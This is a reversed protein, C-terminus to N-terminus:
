AKFKSTKVPQDPGQGTGPQDSEGQLYAEDYPQSGAREAEEKRRRLAQIVDPSQIVSMPTFTLVFQAKMDPVPALKVVVCFLPLNVSAAVTNVLASFNKVSMVPVDLIAMEASMVQEPTSAMNAPIVVIRRTEKCWKGRGSPSNPDSGWESYKCGKCEENKPSEVNEHPEMGDDTGAKCAFCDPNVINNPDYKRMYLKRWYVDALVIVEMANGAVPNKMYSLFGSKLSIKSISPRERAADDKAAQALEAALEAPLAVAGAAQSFPVLAGPAPGPQQVTQPADQVTQPASSAPPKTAM